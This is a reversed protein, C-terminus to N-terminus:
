ATLKNKIRAALSDADSINGPKRKPQGAAASEVKQTEVTFNQEKYYAARAYWQNKLMLKSDVIDYVHRTISQDSGLRLIRGIYQKMKSKRPTALVLGNMKVISKGTGMYQYTTFIIRAQQEAHKLAVDTAGGVIRVYDDDCLMLETQEAHQACFAERIKELYDRRDAFVYTFLSLNLCENICRVILAIREQDECIMSITETVSAMDTISNKIMRTYLPSGHYNIRHVVCNFNKDTPRYGQLKAANIVPGIAWWVMQDFRHIHEDPTASLGLMYPAQAINLAKGAAKNAYLHCEDYIILGFQEFFEIPTMQKDGITFSPSAASNIVVLMIDGDIKKKGYYCGVTADPLCKNLVDKKWQDLMSTSHIIIATKKKIQSILYAALYSKGQGAELNLICGASGAAVRDACYVTQVLHRYILEQNPYLTGAWRFSSVPELGAGITHKTAVRDLLFKKNLIEFVGFRPVIIRRKTKDVVCRKMRRIGGVRQMVQLTFYNEIRRVAKQEALKDGVPKVSLLDFKIFAGSKTIPIACRANNRDPIYDISIEGVTSETVDDIDM